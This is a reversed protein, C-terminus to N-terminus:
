THVSYAGEQGGFVHLGGVVWEGKGREGVVGGWGGVTVVGQQQYLLVHVLSVQQPHQLVGAGGHGEGGLELESVM